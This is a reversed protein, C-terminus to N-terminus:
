LFSRLDKERQMTTTLPNSQLPKYKTADALIELMKDNYGSKDIRAIGNGKDPKM